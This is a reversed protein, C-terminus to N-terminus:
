QVIKQDMRADMWGDMWADMCGHMWADMWGDMWGDMWREIWGGIQTSLLRETCGRKLLGPPKQAGHRAADIRRKLGQLGGFFGFVLPKQPKAAYKQQTKVTNSKLPHNVSEIM